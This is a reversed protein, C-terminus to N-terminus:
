TSSLMWSLKVMMPTGAVLATAKEAVKEKESGTVPKPTSPTVPPLPAAHASTALAWGLAAAAVSGM